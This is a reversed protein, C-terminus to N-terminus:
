GCACGKEVRYPLCLPFKRNDVNVFKYRDKV